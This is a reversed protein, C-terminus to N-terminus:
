KPLVFYLGTFTAAVKEGSMVQVEVSLKIKKDTLLDDICGSSLSFGTKAFAIGAIPNHYRIKADALVINGTLKKQEMLLYVWGWGTLTSLTYISGAFMTNHLNKNFLEDCTTVLNQQDYYSVTVKMAKSMPITSHWTNQLATSLKDHPLVARVLTKEMKFHKIENFLLHSFGMNKYSLKQYFSIAQERAKLSLKNVGLSSAFQELALVLQQGLGKGQFDDAVAMYRIQGEFMSCFHLRAVAIINGKNDFIARHVAQTELDDRESGQEQQLPKRLITWRLHYYQDFEQQSIPARCEFM